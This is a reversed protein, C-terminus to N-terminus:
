SHGYWHKDIGPDKLHSTQLAFCLGGKQLSNVYTIKGYQLKRKIESSIMTYTNKYALLHM